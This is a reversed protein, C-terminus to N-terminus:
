QKKNQFATDDSDTTAASRNLNFHKLYYKKLESHNPYYMIKEIDKDIPCGKEHLLVFCNYKNERFAAFSM